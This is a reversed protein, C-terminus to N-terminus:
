AGHICEAHDYDFRVKAGALLFRTGATFIVAIDPIGSFRLVGCSEMFLDCPVYISNNYDPPLISTM